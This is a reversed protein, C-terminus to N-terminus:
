RVWGNNLKDNLEPKNKLIQLGERIYADICDTGKDLIKISYAELLNKIDPKKTYIPIPDGNIIHEMMHKGLATSHDNLRTSREHEMLRCESPRNCVGNYCKHCMRCMAEYILHKASCWIGMSCLECTCANIKPPRFLQELSMGAIAVVRANIDLEQLKSQVIRTFGENVYPIKFVFDYNKKAKKPANNGKIHSSIESSIIKSVLIAPYNSRIFNHRLQEMHEWIYDVKSCNRIIRRTETIIINIKTKQPCHSYYDAYKGSHTPKQYFNYQFDELTRIVKLALFVLKNNCERESTFKVEGPFVSNLAGQYRIFATEDLHWGVWTDDM